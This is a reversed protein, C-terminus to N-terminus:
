FILVPLCDDGKTKGDDVNGVIRAITERVWLSAHEDALARRAVERGVEDAIAEYHKAVHRLAGHKGGSIHIVHANINEMLRVLTKTSADMNRSKISRYYSKNKGLWKTSFEDTSMWDIEILRGYYKEINKM